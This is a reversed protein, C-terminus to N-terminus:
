WFSCRATVPAPASIYGSAKFCTTSSNPALEWQFFSLVELKQHAVFSSLFHGSSMNVFHATYTEKWVMKRRVLM